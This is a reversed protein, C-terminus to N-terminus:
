PLEAHVGTPIGHVSGDLQPEQRRALGARGGATSASPPDGYPASCEVSVGCRLWRVSRSRWTDKTSRKHKNGRIGYM